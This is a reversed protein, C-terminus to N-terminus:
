HSGLLCVRLICEVKSEFWLAVEKPFTRKLCIGGSIVLIWLQTHYDNLGRRM